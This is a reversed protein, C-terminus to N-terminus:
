SEVRRLSLRTEYSRSGQMEFQHTAAVVYYAGGFREGVDAIDVVTGAGIRPDGALLADATVHALAVSLLQAAARQEAEAQSRVPWRGDAEPAGSFLRRARAPGSDSGLQDASATGVIAQKNAVDWGGVRVEGPQGMTTLAAHFERLERLVSLRLAPGAGHQSPRFHLTKGVVLLEYGIADARQQLFELDTQEAQLLYPHSLSTGVAEVPLGHERGIQRAIDSDKIDMFSRSRRGRMLRHRRDYGHLRLAVRREAFDVELGTLEGAFVLARRERTGMEVEIVSGEDVRADDLWRFRETELDWANVELTVSSPAAIDQLVTVATVAELYRAGLEQGDIRLGLEWNTDHTTM